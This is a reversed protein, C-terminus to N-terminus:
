QIEYVGAGLAMSCLLPIKKENVLDTIFVGTLTPSVIPPTGYWADM